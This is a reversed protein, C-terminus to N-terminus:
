MRSVVTAAVAELLSDPRGMAGGPGAYSCHNPNNANGPQATQPKDELVAADHPTMTRLADIAM